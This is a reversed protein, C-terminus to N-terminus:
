EKVFQQHFFRNDTQVSIFYVGGSYNKIDIENDRGEYLVQGQSNIIQINELSNATSIYLVDSVPNPFVFVNPQELENVSVDFYCAGESNNPNEHLTEGNQSYCIYDTTYNLTPGWATGFMDHANAIGEIYFNNSLEGNGYYFRKRYEEGILISDVDVVQSITQGYFDINDGIQLEYDAMLLEVSEFVDRRFVKRGEQRFLGYYEDSFSPNGCGPNPDNPNPMFEEWTTYKRTFMKVYLTDNLISDGNLYYVIQSHEICEPQGSYNIRWEPNNAFYDPIQTIGFSACSWFTLIFLLKKM